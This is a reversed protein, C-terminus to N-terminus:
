QSRELFKFERERLFVRKRVKGKNMNKGTNDGGKIYSTQEINTLM